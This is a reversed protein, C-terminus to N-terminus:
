GRSREYVGGRESTRKAFLIEEAIEGPTPGNLIQMPFTDGGGMGGSEVADWQQATLIPEPRGTANLVTTLGPPLWGGSDYLTPPEADGVPGGESYWNHSSKFAWANMPNGYRGRIYELGAETQLRPDSTKGIGKIGWTGDLFQFMGYASSTPNQALNNFGSESNILQVLATWMDGTAWGYAGALSRVIDVNAQRNAPTASNGKGGLGLKGKLFDVAGSALKEPIGVLIKGIATDDLTGYLRRMQKRIWGLPDTLAGAVGGLFSAASSAAGKIGSGLKKLGGVLGGDAYGPMMGNRLMELLSEGGQARLARVAGVPLVFEGATLWAPINDARDHPSFGPVVGGTAFSNAAMNHAARQNAKGDQQQPADFVTIRPIPTSGVKDAIWNFASILGNNLVTEVVFKIPALFIDKLTDWISKIADVASQIVPPLTDTFFGIIAKGAGTNAFADWGAKIGKWLLMFLHIGLDVFAWIAKGVWTLYSVYAELIPKTWHEWVWMIVQGIAKFAANVFDRFWKVKTYLLVFVVALAIMVAIGALIPLLMTGAAAGIAGFIEAVVLLTNIITVLGLLAQIGLVVGLLALALGGLIRPDMGAIFNLMATFFTMLVTAFPALAVGLNIAAMVFAGFLKVVKPGNVRLWELFAMFGSNTDLGDSWKIAADLLDAFGVLLEASFPAFAQMLNAIITLVQGGIKAWLATFVPAYQAFTSFFSQWMPSTLVKAASVMLDGLTKAMTGIFKELGPGYKDILMTIATQLGPLLGEEAAGRLRKFLPFLGYIFTAFRQGAPSLANMADQLQQMSSSGIEGTKTLAEQYSAEADSLRERADRVGDVANQVAVEADVVRENANVVREKAAIVEDSGDVGKSATEQQEKRIEANQERIEKLNLQANGLNVSAQEKELNTAGPDAMANRYDVTANFLDIVAQREALAGGALRNSLDEQQQAAAERAHMLNEQARKADQQARLLNREASEQSRIASVIGQRADRIGKAATRIAKGNSLADKAGNKEVARMAQVAKAIGSLALIFVGLGALAGLASTGIAAIGGAIAGLVPILLPGLAVGALLYGNFARFATGNDDLQKRLLALGSVDPNIKPEARKRDIEDLQLQIKKLEAYAKATNIIVQPDVEEIALRKLEEKLREIQAIAISTDAGVNIDQESLAKLEARIAALKIDVESSDADIEVDPLASLSAKIQKRLMTLWHGASKNLGRGFDDGAEDGEEAAGRGMEQQFAKNALKAQARVKEQFGRFSPVVQLFITGASYGGPAADTM